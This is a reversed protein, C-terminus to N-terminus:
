PASDAAAGRLRSRRYESSRVLDGFREDGRLTPRSVDADFRDRLRELTQIAAAFEHAASQATALMWWASEVGPDRETARKAYAVAKGNDELHRYADARISDLYPDGGVRRDLEDILKLVDRYSKKAWAIDLRMIELRVRQGAGFSSAYRATAEELEAVAVADRALRIERRIVRRWARAPAPLRDIMTRIHPRDYRAEAEDLERWFNDDVDGHAELSAGLLGSMTEGSYYYAVDVVRMTGRTEHLAFALYNFNGSALVVRLLVERMGNATRDRLFTYTARDSEDECLLNALAGHASLAGRVRDHPLAPRAAVIRAELAAKDFLKELAPTDCSALAYRIARAYADEGDGSRAPTAPTSTGGTAGFCGALALAVVVAARM